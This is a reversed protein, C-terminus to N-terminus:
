LRMHTHTHVKVPKNVFIVVGIHKSIQQKIGLRWREM